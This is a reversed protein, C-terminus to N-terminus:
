GVRHMGRSKAGLTIAGTQPAAVGDIQIPKGSSFVKIVVNSTHVTGKLPTTFVVFGSGATNASFTQGAFTILFTGCNGCKKVLIGIQRAHVSHLTLTKNKTSSVSLTGLYAGSQGSKRTWGTSAAATRDDVPLMTCKQASFPSLNNAHDRARVSFCYSTGAAGTFVKQTGILHQLGAPQTFSGFGANYKASKVRIDVDDLGSGGTDNANWKLTIAKANNITVTKSPQTLSATPDTTDPPPPAGLNAEYMGRGHTAVRLVESGTGPKAIAMDFIPVRPLGSGFPSWSTGGNTSAYVGIDTGIYVDNSDNPDVVLANVPVDPLGSNKATWVTSTGNINTTKWVHSDAASTGGQFGDITVYATDSDDPDIVVRAV